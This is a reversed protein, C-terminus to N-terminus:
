EIVEDAIALVAPPVEIDLARAMQLNIVFEFKTSQVVPLDAPKAGKLIRGTYLGVQRFMDTRETGYSMLGGAVVYERNGFISPIRHRATLIAFQTARSGFFSDNAVYLIDPRDRALTAFAADIEGITSANLLQIQLGLSPAAEQVERLTAEASAAIPNVLVAVRVAKPVLDRMLRLRKAGVEQAFMNIGTANGGPRALSAVLGLRVPDQGIGFVIPITATATKAALAADAGGPAAIVAVRRRVLDAVLAPVRDYRGELWHYEVSVNQGETTGTENLGQRFARVRDAYTDASGGNVFGVVPLSPQQGRAAIPWAAAGGLLTIFDRRKMRHDYCSKGIGLRLLKCEVDELLDRDNGLHGGRAREVNKLIRWAENLQAAADPGDFDSSLKALRTALFLNETEDNPSVEVMWRYYAIAQRRAAIEELARGKWANLGAILQCTRACSRLRELDSPDAAALRQRITLAEAFCQEANRDSFNINELYDAFQIQARADDRNRAAQRRQRKLKWGFIGVVSKKDLEADVYCRHRQVLSL